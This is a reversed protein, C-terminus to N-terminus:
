SAGAQEAAAQRFPGLASWLALAAVPVSLCSVLAISKGVALPDAFVYDTIVGV